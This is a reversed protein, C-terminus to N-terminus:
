IEESNLALQLRSRIKGIRRSITSDALGYFSGIERNSAGNAKLTVMDLEDDTLLSAAEAWLLAAASNKEVTTVDTGIVQSIYDTDTIPCLARRRKESERYHNVASSMASYAITTFSYKQPQPESLYRQVAALYRFIVVDYFENIDLRKDHLFRYVLTHHEEAYQREYDTLVHMM